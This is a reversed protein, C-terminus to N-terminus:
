HIIKDYLLKKALENNNLIKKYYELNGENLFAYKRDSKINEVVKELNETNFKLGIFDSVETIIKLPNELMNEYQIHMINQKYTFAKETYQQWLKVGEEINTIRISQSYIRKFILHKEYFNRKIGTNTKSGKLDQFIYERNQLSLAVDVPNRYIHIIKANDYIKQWVPLTFTNRPDKWAWIKGSLSLARFNSHYKKILRKKTHKIFVESIESIFFENLFNMNYPNDWTAGAQFMAWENLKVFFLSEYNEDIDNGIFVGLKSLINTLLSTGSRHM